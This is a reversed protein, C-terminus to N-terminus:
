EEVEVLTVKVRKEVDYENWSCGADSYVCVNSIFFRVPLDYVGLGIKRCGEM